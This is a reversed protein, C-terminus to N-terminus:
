SACEGEMKEVTFAVNSGLDIFDEPRAQAETMEGLDLLLAKGEEVSLRQFFARPAEDPLHSKEFLAILRDIAEPIRRAPIKAVLRGFQAGNTDVGGGITVHYQPMLRAGVKRIGGQLGIASIHNQACGNPCGSVKINTKEAQPSLQQNLLHDGILQAVGRSTTVALKCTDAGPCAVVDRVSDAIPEALGIKQLTLFFAPLEENRIWRVLLNQNLTTRATGDGYKELLDAFGRMQQSSIDGLKLWAVGTSYGPQKQARVNQKAWAEFAPPPPLPSSSRPPRHTPAAEEPPVEPLPRGGEARVKALEEEYRQKYQEFGVVEIVWKMRAKRMDRRNGEAHFVRVVAECAVLLDEVPLFEDMVRASRTLTSTGGAALMKFGRKGDRVQAILGIDMIAGAACDDPCGSINIKFKRPLGSGLKARLFNRTILEGYPTVDFPAGSCVGAYPCGVVNRVTHSCAERCTLGSAEVAAMFPAVDVVKVFHFQFNQRTTVHGYGRSWTDACEALVRLQAGTIVGQPVKIRMMHVDAQRQGYVGRSLRYTRYQDATLEGREFRELQHVFEEADRVDGFTKRVRTPDIPPPQSM